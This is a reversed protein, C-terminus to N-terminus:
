EDVEKVTKSGVLVEWSTSEVFEMCEQQTNFEWCPGSEMDVFYKNAFLYGRTHRYSCPVRIRCHIITVDPFDVCHYRTVSGCVADYPKADTTWKFKKM